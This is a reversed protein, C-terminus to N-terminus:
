KIRRHFYALLEKVFNTKFNLKDACAYAKAAEKSAMKQARDIGYLSVYTLKNQEVDKGATKGLTKSTQTVDIIDDVIQFLLGASEGLASLGEITKQKAGFLAGTVSFSASILAATKKLHIYSLTKKSRDYMEIKTDVFQGAVMGRTGVSQLLLSLGNIKDKDKFGEAKLFIELAYSFLADGALIAVAEDYRKHLTPIGRRFDDNDMAPLDDHILSYTHIMEVACAAQILGRHRKASFLDEGVLLMIAPRIRKGGASVSYNMAEYLPKAFRDKSSLLTKLNKDIERKKLSLEFEISNKQM